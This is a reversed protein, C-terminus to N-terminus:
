RELPISPEEDIGNFVLRTNLNKHFMKDYPENTDILMFNHKKDFVYKNADMWLPKPLIVIEDFM